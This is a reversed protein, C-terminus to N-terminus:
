RWGTEQKDLRQPLETPLAVTEYVTPRWNSEPGWSWKKLGDIVTGQARPKRRLGKFSRIEGINAVTKYLARFGEVSFNFRFGKSYVGENNSM